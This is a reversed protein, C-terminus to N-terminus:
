QLNPPWPYSFNIKKCKQFGSTQFGPALLALTRRSARPFFADKGRGRAAPREQPQRGGIEAEMKEKKYLHKGNSKPGAQAIWSERM